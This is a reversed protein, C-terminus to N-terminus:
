IDKNAKRSWNINSYKDSQVIKAPIGAIVINTRDFKSTVISNKGVVTNDSVIAGKLVSVNKCLWVHNGIKINEPTNLVEKTTENYLTHGDAPDIEIGCGFQCDNGIEVKLNPEGHFDIAGSEISFDDGIILTANDARMNIFLNKIKYKTQGFIVKSNNGLQIVVNKMNPVTETFEVCSNSGYFKVNLGRTRHLIRSKDCKSLCIKNNTKQLPNSFSLKIGLINIKIRNEM